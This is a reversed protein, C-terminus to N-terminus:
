TRRFQKDLEQRSFVLSTPRGHPCHHSDDATPRLRMLHDIEEPTLRDGAKVAAKCAMTALLRDLLQERTPPRDRAALVDVVSQFIQGVPVRELMAPYSSVAVTGGGFDEVELGLEALQGRLELVAGAQEMTLEVPEPILLRQVELRGERVRSRLQEYLIREHLAHQDIVLMGDPTEVVLYADHIQIARTPLGSDPPKRGSDQTRFGSSVPARFTTPDPAPTEPMAQYM